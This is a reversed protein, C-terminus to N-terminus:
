KEFYVFSLLSDVPYVAVLRDDKKIIICKGDYNFDDFETKDWTCKKGNRFSMEIREMNSVEKVFRRLKELNLLLITM